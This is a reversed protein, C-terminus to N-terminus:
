HEKLLSGQENRKLFGRKGWGRVGTCECPCQELRYDGQETEGQRRGSPCIPGQPYLGLRDEDGGHSWCLALYM